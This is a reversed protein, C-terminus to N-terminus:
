TIFFSHGVQITKRAFGSDWFKLGTVGVETWAFNPEDSIFMFDPQKQDPLWFTPGTLDMM